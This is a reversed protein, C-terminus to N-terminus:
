FFVVLGVRKARCSSAGIGVFALDGLLDNLFVSPSGEARLPLFYSVYQLRYGM